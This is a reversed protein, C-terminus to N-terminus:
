EAFICFVAYEFLNHNHRNNEASEKKVKHQVELKFNLVNSNKKAFPQFKHKKSANKIPHNQEPKRRNEEFM